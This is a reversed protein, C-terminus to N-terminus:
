LLASGEPSPAKDSIPHSRQKGPRPFRNLFFTFNPDKMQSLKCLVFSQQVTPPYEARRKGSGFLLPQQLKELMLHPWPNAGSKRYSQNRITFANLLAGRRQGSSLSEGECLGRITESSTNRVMGVVQGMSVTNRHLDGARSHYLLSVSLLFTVYQTRCDLRQVVGTKDTRGVVEQLSNLAKLFKM